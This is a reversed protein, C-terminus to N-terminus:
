KGSSNIVVSIDAAIQAAKDESLGLNEETIDGDVIRVRDELFTRLGADSGLKDRLPDFTPSTVVHEWFRQESSTGSGRRVMVYVRGIEPFRHLAMSLVVKGLFGTGGLLFVNRGRYIASPSLLADNHGVPPHM